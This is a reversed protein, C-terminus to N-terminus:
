IGTFQSASHLILCLSFKVLVLLIESVQPAASSMARGSCVQKLHRSLSNKYMKIESINEQFHCGSGGSLWVDRGDIGTAVRMFM